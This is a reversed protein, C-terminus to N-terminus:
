ESKNGDLDIKVGDLTLRRVFDVLRKPQNVEPMLRQYRAGSTMGANAPKGVRNPKKAKPM